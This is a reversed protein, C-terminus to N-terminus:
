GPALRGRLTFLGQGRPCVGRRATSFDAGPFFLPLCAQALRQDALVQGLEVAQALGAPAPTFRHQALGELIQELGPAALVIHYEHGLVFEIGRGAIAAIDVARQQVFQAHGEAVPLGLVFGVVEIGLDGGLELAAVGHQV